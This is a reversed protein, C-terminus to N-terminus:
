WGKFVLRGLTTNCWELFHWGTYWLFQINFGVWDTLWYRVFLLCYWICFTRCSLLSLNAIQDNNHSVTTYFLRLWAGNGNDTDLSFVQTNSVHYYVLYIHIVHHQPGCQKSGAIAQTVSIINCTRIIIGNWMCNITVTKSNEDDNNNNNIM